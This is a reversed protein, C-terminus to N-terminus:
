FDLIDQEFSGPWGFHADTHNGCTNAVRVHHHSILQKRSWQGDDEAMFTRTDHICDTGGDCRYLRAIV